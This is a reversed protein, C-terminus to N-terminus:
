RALEGNAKGTIASIKREVAAFHGGCTEGRRECRADLTKIQGGIEDLRAFIAHEFKDMAKEDRDPDIHIRTNTEHAVFGKKLGDHSAVLGDFKQKKAGFGFAGRLLFGGVAGVFGAITASAAIIESVDM